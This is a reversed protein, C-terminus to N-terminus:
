EIRSIKIACCSLWQKNENEYPEEFWLLQLAVSSTERPTATSFNSLTLFHPMFVYLTVVSM